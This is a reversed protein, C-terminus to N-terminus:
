PPLSKAGESRLWDVVLPRLAALSKYDVMDDPLEEIVNALTVRWQPILAIERIPALHTRILFLVAGSQPLRIIHQVEVRLHVRDPM